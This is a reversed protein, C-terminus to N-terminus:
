ALDCFLLLLSKVCHHLAQRVAPLFVSPAFLDLTPDECL